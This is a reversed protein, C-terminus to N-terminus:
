EIYDQIYKKKYITIPTSKRALAMILMVWHRTCIGIIVQRQLAAVTSFTM